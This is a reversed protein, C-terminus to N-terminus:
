GLEALANISANYLVLLPAYPERNRGHRRALRQQQRDDDDGGGDDHQQQDHHRQQDEDAPLGGDPAAEKFEQLLALIQQEVDGPM